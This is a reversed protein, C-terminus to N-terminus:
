TMDNWTSTAIFSISCMAQRIAGCTILLKAPILMGDDYIAHDPPISLDRLPINGAFTGHKILVPWVAKPRSHCRYDASRWDVWVIRGPRRVGNSVRLKEM